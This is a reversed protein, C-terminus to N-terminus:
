KRMGREATLHRRNWAKLKSSRLRGAEWSRKKENGMGLESSQRGDDMMQGRDETRQGRDETKQRRDETKQGRDEAM